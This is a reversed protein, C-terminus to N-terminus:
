NRKGFLIHRINGKSTIHLIHPVNEDTKYDESNESITVHTFNEAHADQLITQLLQTTLQQGRFNDNIYLESIHINNDYWNTSPHKRFVCYGVCVDEDTTADYGEPRIDYQIDGQSDAPHKILDYCM